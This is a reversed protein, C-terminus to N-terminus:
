FNSNVTELIKRLKDESGIKTKFEIRRSKTLDEIGAETISEASSAGNAFLLKGLWDRYPKVQPLKYVFQMVAYARNQSLKSNQLFSDGKGQWDSSSHGIVEISKIEDKLESQYLTEVFRPFFDKLITKFEDTLNSSGSTFLYSDDEFSITGNDKIKAGWHKASKNFESSVKQQLEAQSIEFAEAIAKMSNHQKKLKESDTQVQVMFLVAIFLFIMMLVSMVDAFGMWQRSTSM